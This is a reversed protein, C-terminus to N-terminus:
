VHKFAMWGIEIEDQLPGHRYQFATSRVIKKGSSLCSVNGWSPTDTYNYAGTYGAAKAFLIRVEEYTMRTSDALDYIHGSIANWPSGLLAVLAHGVDDIHVYPYTRHRNGEITVDKDVRFWASAYHGFSRGYIFGPRM